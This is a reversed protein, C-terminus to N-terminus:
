SKVAKEGLDSSINKDWGWDIVGSSIVESM